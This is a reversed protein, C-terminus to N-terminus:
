KVLSQKVNGLCREALKQTRRLSGYFPGKPTTGLHKARFVKMYINPNDVLIKPVLCCM